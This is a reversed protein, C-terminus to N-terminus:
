SSRCHRGCPENENESQQQAIPCYVSMCEKVILVAFRTAESGGALLRTTDVAAMAVVVGAGASAMGPLDVVGLAVPSVTLPVSPKLPTKQQMRRNEKM